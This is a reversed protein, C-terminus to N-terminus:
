VEWPLAVGHFKVIAPDRSTVVDKAFPWDSAGLDQELYFVLFHGIDSAVIYAPHDISDHLDMFLVPYGSGFENLTPIIYYDGCGDSAIPIWKNERWGNCFTLIGEIDLFPNQPRIGFLGGQGAEPGNSTRLWIRLEEPVHIETRTEFDDIETDTCGLPLEEGSPKLVTQLLARIRPIEIM